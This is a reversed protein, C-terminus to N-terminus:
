FMQDQCVCFVKKVVMLKVGAIITTERYIYIYILVLRGGHTLAIDQCTELLASNKCDVLIVHVITSFQKMQLINFDIVFLIVHSIYVKEILNNFDKTMENGDVFMYVAEIQKNNTYYLIVDNHNFLRIM